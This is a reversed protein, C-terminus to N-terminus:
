CVVHYTRGNCKVPTEKNSLELMEEPDDYPFLRSAITLSRIKLDMKTKLDSEAQRKSFFDTPKNPTNM